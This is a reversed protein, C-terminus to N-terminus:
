ALPLLASKRLTTLHKKVAQIMADKAGVCECDYSWQYWGGAGDLFQTARRTAKSLDHVNHASKLHAMMGERDFSQDCCVFTKTSTKMNTRAGSQYHLPM